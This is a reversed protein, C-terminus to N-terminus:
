AAKLTALDIIADAASTLEPTHSIFFERQYGGLELVKRKMALFQRKKEPDLAGDSEDSFLCGYRRGSAQAHYLAISRTLCENIWIREGGSIVGISKDKGTDADFVRIDFDERLEGKQTERQTVISVTFRPGYCARLLDNAITTLAPGADDICLAIIGDNGLAKSLLSWQAIENELRAAREVDGALDAQEREINKLREHATADAATATTIAKDLRAVEAEADTARQEAAQLGATDAPPIADLEKQLADVERQHSARAEATRRVQEADLDAIRASQGKFKETQEGAATRAADHSARDEVIQIEAAEIQPKLAAVQALQQHETNLTRIKQRAITLSTRPDGHTDVEKRITEVRVVLTEREARKDTLEKEKEPLSDRATRAEALLQCRGQLDTGKCPVDDILGARTQLSACADKLAHGATNVAALESQADILVRQSADKAAQKAECDAVEKEAAALDDAIATVRLAAKGAEDKREILIEARTIRGEAQSAETNLRQAEARATEAASQVETRKINIDAGIQHVATAERDRAEKIQTTLTDRRRQKETQAAHISQAEALVRRVDDVNSKATARESTLREINAAAQAQEGTTQEHQLKLEDVRGVRGRIAELKARAGKAVENAQTGLVRIHELGLLESMLSKVDANAYDALSKRGQCAFAATFYLEPSGLIHEVCRDYSSTKGDSVTGDPLVMPLWEGLSDKRALYCEQKKNKISGKIVISSQYTQGDHEWTLEKFAEGRTHEFYSFADPSYSSARSPLIRFPHANDLITTKGIGNPGALAVLVTDAALSDFDIEIEERGLGSLIGIFNRLVLRHPTM